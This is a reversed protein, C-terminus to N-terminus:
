ISEVTVIQIGSMQDIFGNLNCEKHGITLYFDVLYNYCHDSYSVELETNLDHDSFCGM